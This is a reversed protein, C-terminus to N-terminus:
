AQSFRSQPNKAQSTGAGLSQGSQPAYIFIVLDLVPSTLYVQELASHLCVSITVPVSFHPEVDDASPKGSALRRVAKQARTVLDHHVLHSPDFGRRAVRRVPKGFEHAAVREFALRLVGRATQEFRFQAREVTHKQVDGVLAADRRAARERDVALRKRRLDLFPKECEVAKREHAFLHGRKVVHLGNHDRGTRQSRVCKRIFECAFVTCFVDAKVVRDRGDHVAIRDIKGM